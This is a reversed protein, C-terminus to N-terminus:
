YAAATMAMPRCPDEGPAQEPEASQLEAWHAEHVPLWKLCLELPGAVIPPTRAPQMLHPPDASGKARPLTLCAPAYARGLWRGTGYLRCAFPLAYGGAKAWIALGLWQGFM